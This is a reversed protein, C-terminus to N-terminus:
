PGADDAPRGILEYPEADEIHVELRDGPRLARAGDILVRGDVEPAQGAWRGQLLGERDEAEGELLVELSTGIRARNQEHAVSSM